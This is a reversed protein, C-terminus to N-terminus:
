PAQCPAPDRPYSVFAFPLRDQVSPALGVVLDKGASDLQLDYYVTIAHYVGMASDSLARPDSSAPAFTALSLGGSSKVLLAVHNVNGIGAPPLNALQSFTWDDLDPGPPGEDLLAEFVRIRAATVAASVKSFSAHHKGEWGTAIVFIADGAQPPSLRTIAEMTADFVDDAKLSAPIMAPTREVTARIEETKSGVPLEVHPGAVTILGFSDTPRVDSLVGAMIAAERSRLAPTIRKGNEVVFVIRRPGSNIAVSQVGIPRKAAHAVFDRTALLGGGEGPAIIESKGSLIGSPQREAWEWHQYKM